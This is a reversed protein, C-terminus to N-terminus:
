LVILERVLLSGLTMIQQHSFLKTDLTHDSDNVLVVPYYVYYTSVRKGRRFM